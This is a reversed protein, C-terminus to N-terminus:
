AELLERAFAAADFSLLDGAAEGVGIFKVPVNLAEHVALVVGGKATGDLKTVVLGTLPVSAAFAKGQAVANQGITGDLVLLSEHPADPMRKAVVRVVKRLEEMLGASTHLRGATDILIVDVGRSVGANIASFAVAAPDGGPAGAVFEAGAREAWIRLQDIAGARFTDGAAVLVRKGEGVLRAALKGIFTTKGAGNVGLVLVVMPASIAHLLAPDSHGARLAKTVGQVLAQEFDGQSRIEGRSALLEMDAILRATVPVGFDAELLLAELRELSGADVGGRALVAVDTLAVDAIRQWLSRRPAVSDKTRFLSPM